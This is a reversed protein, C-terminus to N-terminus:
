SRSYELTGNYKMIDNFNFGSGQIEGEGAGYYCKTENSNCLNIKIKQNTNDGNLNFGNQTHHIFAWGDIIINKDTIKMDLVDYVLDGCMAKVSSLGFIFTIIFMLIIKIFHKRM